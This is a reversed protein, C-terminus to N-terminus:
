GMVDMPNEIASLFADFFTTAAEHEAAGERSQAWDRAFQSPNAGGRTVSSVSGGGSVAQTVTPNAQEYRNLATVFAARERGNAERGLYRTLADDVLATASDPDTLRMSVSTSSGGGGGGGGGPRSGVGGTATGDNLYQDELWELPTIATGSWNGMFSAGQVGSAWVGELEQLGWGGVGRKANMVSFLREKNEPSLAGYSRWAEQQPVMVPIIESSRQVGALSSTDSYGRAEAGTMDGMYVGAAAQEQTLRPRYSLSQALPTTVPYPRGGAM